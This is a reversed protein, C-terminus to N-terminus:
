HCMKGLRRAWQQTNSHSLAILRTRRSKINTNWNDFLLFHQGDRHPFPVSRTFNHYYQRVYKNGHTQKGWKVAKKAAFKSSRAAKNASKRDSPYGPPDGIQGHVDSYRRFITGERATVIAYRENRRPFSETSYVLPHDSKPPPTGDMCIYSPPGLTTRDSWGESWGRVVRSPPPGIRVVWTSHGVLGQDDPLM